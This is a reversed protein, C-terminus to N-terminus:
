MSIISIIDALVCVYVCVCGYECVYIDGIALMTCHLIYLLDLEDPVSVCYKKM